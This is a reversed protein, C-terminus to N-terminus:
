LEDVMQNFANKYLFYAAICMLLSLVAPYLLASWEPNKGFVLINQYATIIAYMPNFQILNKISEPLVNIPYVIPTCWFWFQLFMSFFHGVDRFFVNIVGLIFGMSLAFVIQILLVPIIGVLVAGRFSNTILLFVTFLSFIILFNISASIFSIILLSAQPFNIKKLLNANDIFLNLGRLAVETFYNWTLLGSCLFFGYTFSNGTESLKPGLVQSFVVTYIIILFLPNILAWLFGLISNRYKSQFEQKVSAYIFGRFNYLTRISRM